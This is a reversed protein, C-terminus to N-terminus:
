ANDCRMFALRFDEVLCFTWFGDEFWGAGSWELAAVSVSLSPFWGCLGFFLMSEVLLSRGMLIHM